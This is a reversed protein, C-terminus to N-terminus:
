VVVQVCVFRVIYGHLVGLGSCCMSLGICGMCHCMTASLCFLFSAFVFWLCGRVAFSEWEEEVHSAQAATLNFKTVLDKVTEASIHVWDADDRQGGYSEYAEGIFKNIEAKEGAPLLEWWSEVDQKPLDM